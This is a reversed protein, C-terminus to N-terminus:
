FKVQPRLKHAFMYLVITVIKRVELQSRMPNLCKSMFFLPLEEVLVNFAYFAMLYYMFYKRDRMEVTVHWVIAEVM